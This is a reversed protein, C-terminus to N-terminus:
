QYESHRFTISIRPDAKAVKPISHQWQRQTAGGTVLLDGRGLEFRRSTGGVKSRLLFRRASGVSVIAVLPDVIEKPIRDGHWAVSDRGDRYLNLGGTDFEVAYRESLATRMEELVPLRDTLPRWSATLRPQNVMRGYMRREHTLWAAYAVLWEFVEDSGSLWGPQHDVWCRDDLQHRVLAGFERDVAPRDAALLSAQWQVAV